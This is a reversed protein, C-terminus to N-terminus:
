HSDPPDATASKNQLPQRVRRMDVLKQAGEAGQKKRNAGSSPDAQYIPDVPRLAHPSKKQGDINGDVSLVNLSRLDGAVM